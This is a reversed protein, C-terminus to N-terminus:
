IADTENFYARRESHGLIVTQIGVSKLMSASVEGTYAGNDAFHMNQAVVEINSTRLSQFAHWLNTFSPAVMVEAESTQTQKQLDTLLGETQALDNNM